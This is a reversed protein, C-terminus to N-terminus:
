HGFSHELAEISDKVPRIRDRIAREENPTIERDSAAELTICELDGGAKAFQGITNFVNEAKGPQEDRKVLDYGRQRALHKLFLDGGAADLDVLHDVPIFRTTNDNGWLSIETTSVGLLKGATIQGGVRAVLHRVIAKLSNSM